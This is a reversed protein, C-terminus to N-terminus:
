ASGRLDYINKKKLIIKWTADQQEPVYFFLSIVAANDITEATRKTSTIRGKILYFSREVTHLINFLLTHSHLSIISFVQRNYFPSYDGREIKGAAPAAAV